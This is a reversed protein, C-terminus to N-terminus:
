PLLFKGVSRVPRGQCHRAPVGDAMENDCQKLCPPRLIRELHRSTQFSLPPFKLIKLKSIKFDIFHKSELTRLIKTAQWVIEVHVYRLNSKSLSCSIIMGSYGAYCTYSQNSQTFNNYTLLYGTTVLELINYLLLMHRFIFTIFTSPFICM